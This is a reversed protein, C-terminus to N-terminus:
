GVEARRMAVATPKLHAVPPTHIHCELGELMQFVAGDVEDWRKDGWAPTYQAVLTDSFRVCGLGHTFGSRPEDQVYFRPWEFGCWPEECALLQKIAGPWPVVDDEVLVFGRGANFLDAALRGYHFDDQMVVEIVEFGEIILARAPPTGVEQSVASGLRVPIIINM